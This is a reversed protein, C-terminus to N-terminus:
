PRDDLMEQLAEDGVLALLGEHQQKCADYVVRGKSPAVVEDSDDAFEPEDDCGFERAFGHPDDEHDLYSRADEVLATLVEDIEPRRGDHGEGLGFHTVMRRDECSLYINWQDMRTTGFSHKFFEPEAKTSTMAIQFKQAFTQILDSERVAPVPLAQDFPIMLGAATLEKFLLKRLAGTRGNLFLTVYKPLWVEYIASPPMQMILKDLFHNGLTRDDGPLSGYLTNHNFSALTKQRAETSGKLGYYGEAFHISNAWYYSGFLHWKILSELEPFVKIIAEHAAGGGVDNGHLTKTSCTIAFHPAQKHKEAFEMDFGYTVTMVHEEGYESFRKSAVKQILRYGEFAFFEPSLSGYQNYDPM